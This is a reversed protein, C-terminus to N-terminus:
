SFKWGKLPFELTKISTKISAYYEFEAKIGLAETSMDSTIM